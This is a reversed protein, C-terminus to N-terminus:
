GWFIFVSGTSAGIMGKDEVQKQGSVRMEHFAAKLSAEWDCFCCGRLLSALIKKTETDIFSELDSGSEATIFTLDVTLNEM